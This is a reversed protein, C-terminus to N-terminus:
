AGARSLDRRVKGVFLSTQGPIFTNGAVSFPGEISGPKLDVPSGRLTSLFRNLARGNREINSALTAAGGDARLGGTFEHVVFLALGSKLARAWALLGALGTFLQYPLQLVKEDARAEAPLLAKLLDEARLDGNSAMGAQKRRKAAAIAGRLSGGFSEDSKGEISIAVSRSDREGRLNLDANRPEGPYRDFRVRHEPFGEQLAVGAFVSHSRLLAL